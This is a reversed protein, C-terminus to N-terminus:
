TARFVTGLQCCSSGEGELLETFDNFPGEESSGTWGCGKGSCSQVCLLSHNLTTAYLVVPLSETYYPIFVCLMYVSALDHKTISHMRIDYYTCM